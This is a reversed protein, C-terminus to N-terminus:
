IELVMLDEAAAVDAEPVLSKVEAVAREPGLVPYVHVLLTQKPRAERILRAVRSPTMHGTVRADEPFACEVVLLDADRALAVLNECYDTDGTYTFAKGDAEMRYCVTTLVHEVPKALLRWRGFDMMSDLMESLTISYFKPSIQDGYLSVLRSWFVNFGRPAIVSLDKQRPQPGYRSAFILPALDNIHDVHWHTLLIRDIDRCTVGIRALQRLAGPGLDVVVKSDAVRVFVCPSGREPDPLGTGSGCITIRM